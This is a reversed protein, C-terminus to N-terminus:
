FTVSTRIMAGHQLCQLPPPPTQHSDERQTSPMPPAKPQEPYTGQCPTPRPPSWPRYKHTNPTRTHTRTTRSCARARTHTPAGIPADPDSSSSTILIDCRACAGRAIRFGVRCTWLITNWQACCMARRRYSCVRLLGYASRSIHSHFICQRLGHPEVTLTTKYTEAGHQARRVHPASRARQLCRLFVM